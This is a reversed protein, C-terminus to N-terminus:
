FKLDKLKRTGHTNDQLFANHVLHVHTRPFQRGIEFQLQLFYIIQM